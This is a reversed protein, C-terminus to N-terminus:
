SCRVLCMREGRTDPTRPAFLLNVVLGGAGRYHSENSPYGSRRCSVWDGRVRTHGRIPVGGRVGRGVPAGHGATANKEEGQGLLPSGLRALVGGRTRKLKRRHQPHQPLYADLSILKTQDGVFFNRVHRSSHIARAVASFSSPSTCTPPSSRDPVPRLQRRGTM